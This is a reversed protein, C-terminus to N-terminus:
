VGTKSKIYVIILAIAAPVFGAVAGWIGSKVKLMVIDQQIGDIKEDLSTYCTNLRELEKLVYKGWEHWGNTSGSVELENMHTGFQQLNQNGELIKLRGELESLRDQNM